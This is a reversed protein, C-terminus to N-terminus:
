NWINKQWARARLLVLCKKGFEHVYWSWINKALITCTGLGVQGLECNLSQKLELYKKGPKHAYCSCINKALITSTGLGVQGLECNLSQKQELYKKGFKHM